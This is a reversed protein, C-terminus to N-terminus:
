QQLPILIFCSKDSGARSAQLLSSHASAVTITLRIGKLKRKDSQSKLTYARGV